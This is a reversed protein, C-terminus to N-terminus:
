PAPEPTGSTPRRSCGGRRADQPAGGGLRSLKDHLIESQKKFFDEAATLQQLRSHQEVYAVALENVFDRAWVPDSGTIAVEIVNSRGLPQVELRRLIDTM